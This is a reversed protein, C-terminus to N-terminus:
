STKLRRYKILSTIQWKQLPQSLIVDGQIWTKRELGKIPTAFTPKDAYVIRTLESRIVYSVRCVLPIQWAWSTNLCEIMAGSSDTRLVDVHLLSAAHIQHLRRTYLKSPLGMSNVLIRMGPLRSAFDLEGRGGPSYITIRM